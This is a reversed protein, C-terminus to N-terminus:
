KNPLGWKKVLEENLGGEKANPKGKGTSILNRLSGQIYSTWADNCVEFCEHSPNLGEHTFTLKSGKNLAEIEFIFKSNIWETKDNVFSFENDLVLYVLKKNAIQEIMKLKCLHVEKYHYFFEENLKDTNGQIEESWWARFNMIAKYVIEPSQEVVFCSTYDKTLDPNLLPLLKNELYQTWAPACAEYCEVAPQLGKHTFSLMTKNSAETIEFVIETNTWEEKNELFSLNSETVLWVLKKNPIYEVVKQVSYHVGNGAKYSFTDGLQNTSGTIEEEYYGTWWSRINKIGEFVKEASLTSALTFQFNNNNM